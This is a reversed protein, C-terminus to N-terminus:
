DDRDLETYKKASGRVKDVPYKEKNHALKHHVAEDLDIGLIDSFRILYILVDALEEEGPDEFLEAIEGLLKVLTGQIQRDPIVIQAWGVVIMTLDDLHNTSVDNMLNRIDSMTLSINSDALLTTLTNSTQDGKETTM